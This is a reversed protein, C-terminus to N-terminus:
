SLVANSKFIYFIIEAFKSRSYNKAITPDISVERIENVISNPVALGMKVKKSTITLEGNNKTIVQGSYLLTIATM